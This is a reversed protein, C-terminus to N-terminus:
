DARSASRWAAATALVVTAVIAVSRLDALDLGRHEEAARWSVALVTALAAAAALALPRLRSLDDV